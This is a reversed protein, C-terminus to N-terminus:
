HPVSGWRQDEPLPLQSLRYADIPKLDGEALRIPAQTILWTSLEAAVDPLEGSFSFDLSGNLLEPLWWEALRALQQDARPGPTEAWRELWHTAARYMVAAFPLVAVASPGEPATISAAFWAECFESVANREDQPWEHWGADGFKRAILTEDIHLRQEAMERLIRPTLRRWLRVNADMTTGWRWLAAGFLRDPIEGVPGALVNLDVASFCHSCAHAPEIRDRRPGFAAELGDVAAALRRELAPRPDSSM